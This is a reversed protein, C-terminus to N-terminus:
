HTVVTIDDPATITADAPVWVTASGPHSGATTNLFYNTISGDPNTVAVSSGFAPEGQSTLFSVTKRPGSCTGNMMVHIGTSFFVGEEYIPLLLMDPCNDANMDEIILRRVNLNVNFADVSTERDFASENVNYYVLPHDWTEYTQAEFANAAVCHQSKGGDLSGCWMGWDTRFGSRPASYDNVIGLAQGVDFSTPGSNSLFHGSVDSVAVREGGVDSMVLRTRGHGADVFAAGMISSNTASPCEVIGWNYPSGISCTSSVGNSGSPDENFGGYSLSFAERVTGNKPGLILGGYANGPPLFGNETPMFGAASGRFGTAEFDKGLSVALDLYGDGDFDTFAGFIPMDDPSMDIPLEDQALIWEGHDVIYHKLKAAPVPMPDQSEPTWNMASILIDSDLEVTLLAVHQVDDRKWALADIWRDSNQPPQEACPEFGAGSQCLALSATMLSGSVIDPLGDGNDDFTVSAVLPQFNLEPASFWFTDENAYTLCVDNWDGITVPLESHILIPDSDDLDTDLPEFFDGVVVSPVLKEGSTTDSDASQGCAVLIFAPVLVLCRIMNLFM